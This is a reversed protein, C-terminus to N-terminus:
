GPCGGVGPLRRQDLLLPLFGTIEDALVVPATPHVRGFLQPLQVGDLDLQTLPSLRRRRHAGAGPLDILGVSLPVVQGLALIRSNVSTQRPHIPHLIKRRQHPLEPLTVAHRHAQFGTGGMIQLMLDIQGQLPPDVIDDHVTGFRPGVAPRGNQLIIHTQGGQVGQGSGDAMQLPPAHLPIHRHDGGPSQRCRAMEEFRHGQPRIRDIDTRDGQHRHELGLHVDGGGKFRRNLRNQVM